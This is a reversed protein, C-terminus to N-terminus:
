HPSASLTLFQGNTNQENNSDPDNPRIILSGDTGSAGQATIQHIDDGVDPVTLYLVPFVPGGIIGDSETVRSGDLNEEL